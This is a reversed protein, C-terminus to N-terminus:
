NRKFLDISNERRTKNDRKALAVYYSAGHMHQLNCADVYGSFRAVSDAVHSVKRVAHICFGVFFRTRFSSNTLDALLEVKHQAGVALHVSICTFRPLLKFPM